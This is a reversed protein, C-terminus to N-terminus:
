VTPSSGMQWDALSKAFMAAGSLGVADEFLRASGVIRPVSSQGSGLRPEVREYEKDGLLNRVAQRISVEQGSCVNIKGSFHTASAITKLADAVTRPSLFDRQDDVYSLVKSDDRAVAIISNGLTGTPQNKDLVSFVRAIVLRSPDYRFVDTILEEAILKQLAYHGRPLCASNEDLTIDPRTAAYVHSTSVFIFRSSNSQQVARALNVAGTVNM